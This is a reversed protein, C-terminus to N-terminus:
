AQRDWEVSLENALRDLSLYPSCKGDLIAEVGQPGLLACPLSKRVYRPTVGEKKALEGERLPV